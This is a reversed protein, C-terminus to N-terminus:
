GQSGFFCPWTVNLKVLLCQNINPTLWSFNYTKSILWCAYTIWGAFIPWITHNLRSKILFFFSPTKGLYGLIPPHWGVIGANLSAVLLTSSWWGFFLIDVSILWYALLFLWLYIWQNGTFRWSCKAAFGVCQWMNDRDTLLDHERDM